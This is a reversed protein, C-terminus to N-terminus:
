RFGQDFPEAADPGHRVAVVLHEGAAAVRVRRDLRGELEESAHLFLLLVDGPPWARRLASGSVTSAAFNESGCAMAAVMWSPVAPARAKVSSLSCSSRM